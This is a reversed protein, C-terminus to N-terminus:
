PLFVVAIVVVFSLTPKLEDVCPWVKEELVARQYDIYAEPPPAVEIPEQRAAGGKKGGKAAKPDPVPDAM